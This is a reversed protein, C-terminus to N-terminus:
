LGAPLSVRAAGRVPNLKPCFGRQRCVDCQTSSEIWGFLARVTRAPKVDGTRGHYLTGMDALVLADVAADPWLRGAFLSVRTDLYADIAAATM